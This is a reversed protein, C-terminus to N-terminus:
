AAAEAQQWVPFPDPLDPLKDPTQGADEPLLCADLRQRPEAWDINSGNFVIEQRRNGWPALWQEELYARANEHDPWNEKPVSAWWIGLPGLLHHVSSRNQM